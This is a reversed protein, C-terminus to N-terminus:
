ASDFLPLGGLSDPEAEALSATVRPSLWLSETAATGNGRVAAAELRQWGPILERYLPCDYGSLVVLGEASCLQELLEIHDRDSLAHVYDDGKWRVGRTSTVYPPDVYHLTDPSDFVRLVESASRNDIQVRRLRDAFEYLDDVDRYSQTPDRFKSRRWGTRKELGIGTWGGMWSEGYFCRAFEVDDMPEDSRARTRCVEYEDRAFPTCRVAHVLEDTRERLVRMFRVVASWQDNYVEIRSPPKQMLVSAGGGFPEVYCTHDPFHSVIWPALVWKGGHYRLPPRKM